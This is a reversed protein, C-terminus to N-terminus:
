SLGSQERTFNVPSTMKYKYTEYRAIIKAVKKAGEIDTEVLNFMDVKLRNQAEISIPLNNLYIGMITDVEQYNAGLQAEDTNDVTVMLGDSPPQTIIDERIGLVSALVPLEFGKGISFIPSIDGVDGHLTFFKLYEDESKQGTSLVIGGTKRALDYLTLMRLRAKMNGQLVSKTDATVEFGARNALGDTGEIVNFLGNGDWGNFEEFADCFTTGVWAAQEKHATSSSIPISLGILPVGTYESQCLAAVVASDLGGSVGIVLSKLKNTEVYTKIHERINAVVQQAKEDTPTTTKAVFEVLEEFTKM